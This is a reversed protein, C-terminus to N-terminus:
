ANLKKVRNPVINHTSENHVGSVTAASQISLMRLLLCTHLKLQTLPTTSLVPFMITEVHSWGVAVRSSASMSSNELSPNKGSFEIRRSRGFSSHAIYSTLFYRSGSHKQITAPVVARSRRKSVNALFASPALYLDRSFAILFPHHFHRQRAYLAFALIALLGGRREEQVTHLMAM